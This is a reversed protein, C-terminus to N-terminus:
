STRRLLTKTSLYKSDLRLRMLMGKKQEDRVVVQVRRKNRLIQKIPHVFDTDSSVIAIMKYARYHKQLLKVLKIDSDKHGTYISIGYALVYPFLNYIQVENMPFVSVLIIDSEKGAHYLVSNM